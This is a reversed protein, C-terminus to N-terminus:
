PATGEDRKGSGHDGEDDLPLRAHAELEEPRKRLVWVVVGVWVALFFLMSGIAWAATGSEAALEQLV